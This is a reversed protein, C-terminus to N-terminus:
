KLAGVNRIIEKKYHSIYVHEPEAQCTVPKRAVVASLRSFYRPKGIEDKQIEYSM